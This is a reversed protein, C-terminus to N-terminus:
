QIKTSKLYEIEKTGDIFIKGDHQVKIQFQDPDPCVTASVYICNPSTKANYTSTGNVDVTIIRTFDKKFTTTTGGGYADTPLHWTIGDNTTFNGSNPNLAGAAIPSSKGISCDPTGMTNLKNAFLKCFKTVSSITPFDTPADENLFGPRLTDTDAYLADDNVLENVVRETVYYAKKFMIKNQNPRIKIITPIMVAALIGLVAMVVMVEAMTFAKKRM